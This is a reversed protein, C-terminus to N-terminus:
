NDPQSVERAAAVVQLAKPLAGPDPPRFRTNVLEPRLALRQQVVQEPSAGQLVRQRRKNYAQNFGQLLTELDAHSHVTIGLVEREVRGNFREVMGNTQPTYPKTKRHQVKIERCAAEFAEATFCSGRDTLVHTVQFPAAAIAETLFAIASATLEDDLVALHVWRSARDLAVCLVRKRREGDAAQLKPLHKIDLHLFGLDCDRFTGSERQRPHAPPGPPEARRGQPHPASPM